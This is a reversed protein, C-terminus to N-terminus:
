LIIFRLMKKLIIKKDDNFPETPDLWKANENRNKKFVFVGVIIVSIFSLFYVM